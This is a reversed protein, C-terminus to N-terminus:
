RISATTGRRLSLLWLALTMLSIVVLFLLATIRYPLLHDLINAYEAQALVSLSVAQRSEILWHTCELGLVCGMALATVLLFPLLPRPRSVVWVSATQEMGVEM